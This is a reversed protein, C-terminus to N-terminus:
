FEWPQFLFAGGEDNTYARRPAHLFNIASKANAATVRCVANKGGVSGHPSKGASRALIQALHKHLSLGHILAFQTSGSTTDKSKEAQVKASIGSLIDFGNQRSWEPTSNDCKGANDGLVDLRSESRPFGSKPLFATGTIENYSHDKRGQDELM